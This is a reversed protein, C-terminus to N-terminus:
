GFLFKAGFAMLASAEPTDMLDDGTGRSLAAITAVIRM